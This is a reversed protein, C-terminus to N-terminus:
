QLRRVRRQQCSMAPTIAVKKLKTKSFIEAETAAACQRRMDVMTAFHGKAAKARAFLAPSAPARSLFHAGGRSPRVRPRVHRRSRPPSPPFVTRLM